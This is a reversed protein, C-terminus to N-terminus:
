TRLNHLCHKKKHTENQQEPENITIATYPLAFARNSDNKKPRSWQRAVM